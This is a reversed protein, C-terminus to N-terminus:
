PIRAESQDLRRFGQRNLIGFASELSFGGAGRYILALAIGFLPLHGVLENVGLVILTTMFFGFLTAAALRTAVGAVLLVGLGLEMLGAAFVFQQNSFDTFGLAPMFNLDQLDLFTLAMNPDLLKNHLSLVILSLGVGIRIIPLPLHAFRRPNPGAMKCALQDPCSSLGVFILALGLAAYEIIYDLLMGVPFSFAAIPIAVALVLAGALAFSVQSLLLLGVLIQAGLALYGFWGEDVRLEASLFVGSMSNAILMIGALSAILRWEMGVPLIRQPPMAMAGLKGYLGSRTVMLGLALIGLSSLLAVLAVMEVPQGEGAHTGEEVFWREHARALPLAGICLGGVVGTVVAGAKMKIGSM